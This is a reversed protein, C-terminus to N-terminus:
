SKFRESNSSKRSCRIELIFILCIIMIENSKILLLSVELDKFVVGMSVLGVVFDGIVPQTRGALECYNRTTTGMEILVLFTNFCFIFYVNLFLVSCCFKRSTMLELLTEICEDAASDFGAEVLLACVVEKLIRRRPNVLDQGCEM